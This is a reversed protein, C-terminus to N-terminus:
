RDKSKKNLLGPTSSTLQQWLELVPGLQARWKERDFKNAEADSTSLALLQKIVGTSTVRQLSREINDPLCFVFPADTDPLKDIIRRFSEYDANKPMKLATGQHHHRHYHYQHHHHHNRHHHHHTNIFINNMIYINM